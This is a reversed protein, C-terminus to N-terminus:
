AAMLAEVARRMGEEPDVRPQWGLERRARANSLNWQYGFAKVDVRLLPPPRRLRLARWITEMATAAAAAVPRPVHRRPPRVGVRAAIRECVQQLTPGDNGDHVIYRGGPAARELAAVCADALNDVYVWPLRVDKKWFFMWGGRIAEALAPFFARDGPGYVWGPYVIVTRIGEAATFELLPREAAIKSDPYPEGWERYPSDEDMPEGDWRPVGFVDTTSVYLLRTAGAEVAARAVNLTGGVNVAFYRERPAWAHVMAAAHVMATCGCLAARVAAADTVDAEVIDLSGANGAADPRQGPLVLARVPTGRALLERVLASGVFGAAGTVAVRGGM